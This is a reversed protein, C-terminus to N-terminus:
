GDFVGVRGPEHFSPDLSESDLRCLVEAARGVHFRGRGDAYVLAPGILITESGLQCVTPVFRNGHLPKRAVECDPGWPTEEVCVAEVPAVKRDLSRSCSPNGSEQLCRLAVGNQIDARGRTAFRGGRCGFGSDSDNCRIDAEIAQSSEVLIPSTETEIDREQRGIRPQERESIGEVVDEDIGRARTQAREGAM